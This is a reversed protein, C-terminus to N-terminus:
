FQSASPSQAHVGELGKFKFGGLIVCTKGPAGLPFGGSQRHSRAEEARTRAASFNQIRPINDFCSAPTFSEFAKLMGLDTVWHLPKFLRLLRGPDSYDVTLIESARRCM